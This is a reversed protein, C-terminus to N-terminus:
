EEGQLLEGVTVAEYGAQDLAPLLIGLAQVTATRDGGGDHMVIIQGPKLNKLIHSAIYNADHYKWDQPDEGWSILKLNNEKALDVLESSVRGGPARVMHPRTGTIHAVLKATKNLDDNIFDKTKGYLRRHSYGHNGIEHGNQSVISLVKPNEQVHQGIVFFTAKKQYRELLALIQPTYIPDPGDDFTLAVVKEHTPIGSVLDVSVPQSATIANITSALYVICGLLM